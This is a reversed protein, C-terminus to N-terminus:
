LLDLETLVTVLGNITSATINTNSTTNSITLPSSGTINITSGSVSQLTSNHVQLSGTSTTNVFLNGSGSNKINSNLFYNKLYQGNTLSSTTNFYANTNSVVTTGTTSTDNDIFTGGTISPLITSNKINIKGNRVRGVIGQFNGIINGNFNIEGTSRNYFIVNTFNSTTINIDGNIFMKEATQNDFLIKNYKFNFTGNFTSTGLTSSFTQFRQVPSGDFSEYWNANCILNYTSTNLFSQYARGLYDIKNLNVNIFPSSCYSTSIANDNGLSEAYDINVTVTSGTNIDRIQILQYYTSRAKRFKLYYQVNTTTRIIIPAGIGSQGVNNGTHTYNIEDAYIKIISTQGTISNGRVGILHSKSILSKVECDFTCGDGIGPEYFVVSGGSTDAGISDGSFQLDGRVTCTGGSGPSKFLYMDQGTVTQNFFVVNTNPSFYYSVGDKWLNVLTDLQGNYPNGASNRNDYAWTGPFVYITDGSTSASKAAYINQYPKHVDGKVATSDNGNPDVFLIKSLNTGSSIGSVSFTGGTNNTFTITSSNFTGGTVFVDTNVPLNQYTTASITNATLGNTFNTGGSVTGGTFTQIDSLLAVTGSNDPFLIVRNSTLANTNINNNYGAYKFIIDDNESIIIDNGNSVNGNILVQQLTNGTTFGTVNFTGGTNNTFIATGNSYTGGTVFTDQTSIGTLNSGNGYLTGGSITTASLIGNVTLGSVANIYANFNTNTNDTLTVTNTSQNYTSATIFTNTDSAINVSLTGGTPNTITLTNASFTLGSVGLSQLYYLNNDMDQFTLKTNKADPPLIRTILSM